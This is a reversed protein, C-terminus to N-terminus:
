FRRRLPPPPRPQPGSPPRPPNPKRHNCLRAGMKAEDADDACPPPQPAPTRKCLTRMWQTCWAATRPCPWPLARAGRWLRGWGFGVLVVSPDALFHLAAPPLRYGMSSTRLLVAVSASALQLMAVPSTRGALVEPRWELDIAVVQDQPACVYDANCVKNELAFFLTGIGRWVRVSGLWPEELANGWPNTRIRAPARLNTATHLPLQSAGHLNARQTTNSAPFLCGRFTPAGNRNLRQAPPLLVPLCPPAALPWRGHANHGWM